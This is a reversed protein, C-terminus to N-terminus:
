KGWLQCMPFPKWSKLRWAKVLGQTLIQIHIPEILFYQTHWEVLMDVFISVATSELGVKVPSQRLGNEGMFVNIGFEHSELVCNFKRYLYSIFCLIVHLSLNSPIFSTDIVLRDIVNKNLDFCHFSVVELLFTKRFYKRHLITSRRRWTLFISASFSFHCLHQALFVRASYQLICSCEVWLWANGEMGFTEAIHALWQARARFVSFRLSNQLREDPNYIEPSEKQNSSLPFHSLSRQEHFCLLPSTISNPFGRKQFKDNSYLRQLIAKSGGGRDFLCIHFFTSWVM